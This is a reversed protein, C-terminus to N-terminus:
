DGSRRNPARACKSAACARGFRHGAGGLLASAVIRWCPKLRASTTKRKKQIGQQVNM